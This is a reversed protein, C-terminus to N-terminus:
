SQDIRKTVKCEYYYSFITKYGHHIINSLGDGQKYYIKDDGEKITYKDNKYSLLGKIIGHLQNEM